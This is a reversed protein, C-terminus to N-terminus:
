GVTFYDTVKGGSSEFKYHLVAMRQVHLLDPLLVLML